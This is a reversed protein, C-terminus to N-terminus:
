RLFPIFHELLLILIIIASAEFISVPISVNKKNEFLSTHNKIFVFLLIVISM